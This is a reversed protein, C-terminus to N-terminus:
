RPRRPHQAALEHVGGCVRHPRRSWCRSGGLARRDGKGPHQTQKGGGGGSRREHTRNFEKVAADLRAQAEEPSARLQQILADTGDTVGGNLDGAKFKPTITGNILISSYADTLIPELGYGVEIRM